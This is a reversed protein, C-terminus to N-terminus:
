AHGAESSLRDMDIGILRAAARWRQDFPLEFLIEQNAPVTLWANGAMEAELQGAGWGAYGLVVLVREPGGGEAMAALIDRSTTVHTADGVQFTSSWAGATDHIVFGREPQVPGGRLVPTGTVVADEAELSMQGLIDGLQMDMPRNIVLGLAGDANHECVFTVTHDFNPDGMAPMAILFQNTLYTPDM